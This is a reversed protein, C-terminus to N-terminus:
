RSWMGNYVYWNIIFNKICGFGVRKIKNKQNENNGREWDEIFKEVTEIYKLISRIILKDKLTFEWEKEKLTNYITTLALKYKEERNM